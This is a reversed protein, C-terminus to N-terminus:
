ILERFKTDIIRPVQEERNADHKMIISARPRESGGLNLRIATSNDRSLVNAPDFVVGIGRDILEQLSADVRDRFREDLVFRITNQREGVLFSDVVVVTREVHSGDSDAPVQLDSRVVAETPDSTDTIQAM